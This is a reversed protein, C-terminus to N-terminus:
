FLSLSLSFSLHHYGMPLIEVVEEGGGIEGAESRAKKKGECEREKKREKRSTGNKRRERKRERERESESVGYM